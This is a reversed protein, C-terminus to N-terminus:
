DGSYGWFALEHPQGDRYLVTYRGSWRPFDPMPGHGDGQRQFDARTPTDTGFLARVEATTLARILGVRDPVETGTVTDMDLISHTGAEWFEEDEKAEALDALSTLEYGPDLFDREALVKRQLAAFAQDAAQYPVLYDWGSAGM